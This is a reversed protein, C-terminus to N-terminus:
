EWYVNETNKMVVPEDEAMFDSHIIKGKKVHDLYLAPRSDPQDFTTQMNYITLNKVHRFFIGYAPYPLESGYMGMWPYDKENEPMPNLKDTVIGGRAEIRINSLTVNEIYHGPFGAITSGFDNYVNKCIINDLIINRMKGPDPEEGGYKRGRNGLRMFIPAYSDEIVINSIVVGDMTGGDVIELAIGAGHLTTRNPDYSEEEYSARIICNSITINQFGGGSETGTKIPTIKSSIVSNSVSVNKVDRTGLSKFVLGDDDADIFVNSITIDQCEDINLGDNNANAHAYIEIGRIDVLDCRKLHMTWNNPNMAKIDNIKINKSNYFFLLRPREPKHWESGDETLPYSRFHDSYAGNGDITGLGTIAINDANEAMILGFFQQRTKGDPAFSEMDTIRHPYHTSDASGLLTAGKSVHLEVNSKMFVSGTLYKGPPILVKGGGQESCLNIAKQIADTNIKASDGKAGFDVINYVGDKQRSTCGAIFILIIFLTVTPKRM